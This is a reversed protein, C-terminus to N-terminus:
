GVNKDWSFRSSFKVTNSEKLISIKIHTEPEFQQTLNFIKHLMKGGLNHVILDEGLNLGSEQVRLWENALFSHYGHYAEAV